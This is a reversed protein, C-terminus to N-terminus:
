NNGPWADRCIKQQVELDPADFWAERLAGMKPDSPWGFWADAGSARIAIDTRALHEGHRRSLYLLHEVRGERRARPQRTAGGCQGMGNAPFRYEYEIRQLM